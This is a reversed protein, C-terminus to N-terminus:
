GACLQPMQARTGRIQQCSLALILHFELEPFM